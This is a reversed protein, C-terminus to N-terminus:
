YDAQLDDIVTQSRGMKRALAALMAKPRAWQPSLMAANEFAIKAQELMGVGHLAYGLLEHVLARKPEIRISEVAHHRAAAASAYPRVIMVGPM